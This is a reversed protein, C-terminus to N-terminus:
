PLAGREAPFVGLATVAGAEVFADVQAVVGGNADRLTVLCRPDDTLPVIVNMFAFQGHDSTADMALTLPYGLATQEDRCTEEVEATLGETHGKFDFAFGRCDVISGSIIARRADYEVKAKNGLTRTLDDINARTGFPAIGDPGRDRWEPRGRQLLWRVPGDPGADEFLFYGVFGENGGGSMSATDVSLAAIGEGDTTVPDDCQVGGTRLYCASIESGVWPDSTRFKRTRLYVDIRDDTEPSPWSFQDVCEFRRGIECAERCNTAACKYLEEEPADFVQDIPELDDRVADFCPPAFQSGTCQGDGMVRALCKPDAECDVAASCCRNAMCLACEPVEFVSLIETLEPCYAVRESLRCSGGVECERHLCALLARDPRAALPYLGTGCAEFCDRQSGDDICDRVCGARTRCAEDVFCAFAEDNCATGCEDCTADGFLQTLRTETLVEKVPLACTSTVLLGLWLSTALARKM